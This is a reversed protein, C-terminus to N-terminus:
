FAIQHSANLMCHREVRIWVFPHQYAQFLLKQWKKSNKPLNHSSWWTTLLKISLHEFSLLSNKSMNKPDFVSEFEGLRQHNIREIQLM